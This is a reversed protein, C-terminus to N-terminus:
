GTATPFSPADPINRGHHVTAPGGTWPDEAPRLNLGHEVTHSAALVGAVAAANVIKGEFVARVAQSLPVRVMKLDSEESDVEARRGIDSLGRAAFVRVAETTFGPSAAVDVLVTWDLAELGTEEALERQAAQLPTEDDVDMLGAPLEWLRRRLPHRFQEILVVDPDEEDGRASDLVLVAVARDHEVVERASTRGGPMEVEDIRVATIHGEFMRRTGHVSYLGGPSTTPQEDAGVPTDAGARGRNM